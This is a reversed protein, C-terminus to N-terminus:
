NPCIRHLANPACRKDVRPSRCTEDLDLLLCRWDVGLVVAAAYVWWATEKTVPGPLV